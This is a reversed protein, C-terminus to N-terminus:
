ESGSLPLQKGDEGTFNLRFVADQIKLVDPRPWAAFLKEVQDLTMEPEVASLSVLVPIMSDGFAQDDKKGPHETILDDLQKAGVAQFVFTFGAVELERQPMERNLLDKFDM